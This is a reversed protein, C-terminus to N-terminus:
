FLLNTHGHVIFIKEEHKWKKKNKKQLLPHIRQHPILVIKHSIYRQHHWKTLNASAYSEAEQAKKQCVISVDLKAKQQKYSWPTKISTETIKSISLIM